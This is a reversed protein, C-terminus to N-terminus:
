RSVAQVFADSRAGRYYAISELTGNLATTGYTGINLTTPAVPLVLAGSTGGVAVGDYALFGRSTGWGMSQKTRTFVTPSATSGGLDIQTGGGSFVFSRRFGSGGNNGAVLVSNNVSGDNLYLAEQNYGPTSPNLTHLRYAAVLVGGQSASWGPLSTLPLSLVDQTRSATAGATPIYSTVGVGGTEFQAGWAYIGSTGDGTWTVLSYNGFTPSTTNLPQIAAYAITDNLSGIVSVRYWGNGCARANASIFSGGAGANSATVAGTSLNVVACFSKTGLAGYAGVAVATLEAAKCFFSVGFPANATVAVGANWYLDHWTSVNSAAIKEAATNGDPAVAANATVIVRGADTNWAANDLESSRTISNTSAMEALYGLPSGTAPDYDFRPGYYASSTTPWYGSSVNPTRNTQAGWLYLGSSGNGSYANTGAVSQLYFWLNTNGLTPWAFAIECLYWGNGVSTITATVGADVGTTTGNSLNFSAGYTGVGGANEMRFATREAAKAYVASRYTGAPQSFTASCRWHTTSASSDEVLKDATTTGDPATTADASVSSRTSTWAANDIQQSYTILNEPAWCLTGDSRYQMAGSTRSFTTGGPLVGTTFDWKWTPRVPNGLLIKNLM